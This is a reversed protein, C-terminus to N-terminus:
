VAIALLSVALRGYCPGVNRGAVLDAPSNLAIMM